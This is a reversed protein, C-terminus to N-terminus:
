TSHCRSGHYQQRYNAFLRGAFGPYRLRATPPIRFTAPLCPQFPSPLRQRSAPRRLKTAIKSCPVAVGGVPSPFTRCRDGTSVGLQRTLHDTCAFTGTFLDAHISFTTVRTWRVMMPSDFELNSLQTARGNNTRLLRASGGDLGRGFCGDFGPHSPPLQRTFSSSALLGGDLKGNGRWEWLGSM